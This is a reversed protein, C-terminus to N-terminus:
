AFNMKLDTILATIEPRLWHVCQITVVLKIEWYNFPLKHDLLHKLLQLVSIAKNIPKSKNSLSLHSCVSM